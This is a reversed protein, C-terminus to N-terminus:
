DEFDNVYYEMLTTTAMRIDEKNLEILNSMFGFMEQINKYSNLHHQLASSLADIIPLYVECKFRERTSFVREVSSVEDFQRKRKKANQLNNTSKSLMGNEEYYEFESIQNKACELLSKLM